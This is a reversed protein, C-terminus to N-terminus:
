NGTEGGRLRARYNKYEKYVLKAVKRSIFGSDSLRTLFEGLVKKRIRHKGLVLHVHETFIEETDVHIGVHSIEDRGVFKDDGYHEHFFEMLPELYDFDNCYVTAIGCRIQVKVIGKKPSSITHTMIMSPDPAVAKNRVLKIFGLAAGNAEKLNIHRFDPLLKAIANTSCLKASAGSALLGTSLSTMLAAATIFILVRM